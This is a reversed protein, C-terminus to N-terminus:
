ARHRSLHNTSKTRLSRESKNNNISKRSPTKSLGHVKNAINGSTDSTNKAKKKRAIVQKCKKIVRKIESREKRILRKPVKFHDDFETHLLRIEGRNQLIHKNNNDILKEYKKRRNVSDRPIIELAKQYEENKATYFGITRNCEETYQKIFKAKARKTLEDKNLWNTFKLILKELNEISLNSLNKLESEITPNKPPM